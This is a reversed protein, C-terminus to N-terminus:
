FVTVHPQGEHAGAHEDHVGLELRAHLAVLRHRAVRRPVDAPGRVHVEARAIAGVQEREEARQGFARRQEPEAEAAVQQHAIAADAAHDDVRLAAERAEFADVVGRTVQSAPTGQARRARWHM